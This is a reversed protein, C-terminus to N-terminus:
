GPNPPNEQEAANDISQDQQSKRLAELRRLEAGAEAAQEASLGLRLAKQLASRATDLRQKQGYILGAQFNLVALDPSQRLAEDVIQQAPDLQGTERYVMAFTDAVSAPLQKVSTKRLAQDVVRRADEPQGFEAALLWALNNAALLNEPQKEFVKRYYDRSEALLTKDKNRRGQALSINALLLRASTQRANDALAMGREAWRRAAALENGGLFTAGLALCVDADPKPGALRRAVQEAEAARGLRCLLAIEKQLLPPNESFRRQGARLVELAKVGKGQEEHIEALLVYAAFADPRQALLDQLEAVAEEGSGLRRLIEARDLRAEVLEPQIKLVQGVSALAEGPQNCALHARVALLRSPVDRPDIRLARQLESLAHKPEGMQLRTRAKADLVLLSNPQLRDAQDLMTLARPFRGDRAALEAGILLLLPEQPFAALLQNVKAEVTAPDKQLALSALAQALRQRALPRLSSVHLSDSFEAAAREFDGEASFVEGKWLKCLGSRQFGGGL